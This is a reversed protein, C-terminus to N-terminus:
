GATSKTVAVGEARHVVFLGHHKFSAELANVGGVGNEDSTDMVAENVISWDVAEQEPGAIFAALINFGACFAREIEPSHLVGNKELWNHYGSDTDLHHLDLM